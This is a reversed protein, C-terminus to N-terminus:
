TRNLAEDKSSSQSETIVIREADPYSDQDSDPMDVSKSQRGTVLLQQYKDEVFALLFIYADDVKLGEQEKKGSRM